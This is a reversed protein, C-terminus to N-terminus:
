FPWTNSNDSFDESISSFYATQIRSKVSKYIETEDPSQHIKPEFRLMKSCKVAM